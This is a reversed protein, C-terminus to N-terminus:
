QINWCFVLVFNTFSTTAIALHWHALCYVRFIVVVVVVFYKIVM